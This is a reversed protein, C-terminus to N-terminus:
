ASGTRGSARAAKGSCDPTAGAAALNLIGRVDQLGFEARFLAELGHVLATCWHHGNRAALREHMGLDVFDDIAEDGAFFVDIEAGVGQQQFFFSWRKLGLL